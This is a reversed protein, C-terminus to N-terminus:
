SYEFWIQLENFELEGLSCVVYSGILALLHKFWICDESTIGIQMAMHAVEM